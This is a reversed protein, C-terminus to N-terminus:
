LNEFLPKESFTINIYIFKHSEEDRQLEQVPINMWIYGNEFKENEIYFSRAPMSFTSDEIPEYDNLGMGRYFNNDPDSSIVKCINVAAKLDCESGYSQCNFHTWVGNYYKCKGGCDSSKHGVKSSFLYVGGYNSSSTKLQKLLQATSTKDIKKVTTNVNEHDKVCSAAWIGVLCVMVLFVNAKKM